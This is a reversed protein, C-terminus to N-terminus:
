LRFVQRIDLLHNDHSLILHGAGKKRIQRVCHRVGCDRPMEPRQTYYLRFDADTINAFDNLHVKETRLTRIGRKM